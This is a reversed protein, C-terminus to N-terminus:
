IAYPNSQDKHYEIEKEPIEDVTLQGQDSMLLWAQCASDVGDWHHRKKDGLKVRKVAEINDPSFTCLQELLPECWKRPRSIENGKADTVPQGDPGTMLAGPLFILGAHPLHSVAHARAIKDSKGPDYSFVPVGARRLDQILSIGSSKNEVMVVDPSRSSADDGYRQKWDHVVKPRLDPYELWDSWFDLLLAARTEGHDFVGWTTCATPDNANNETGATDYSQVVYTFKPFPKDYPWVRFWSRKFIAGDEGDLIEAHLEQRGLQTGEYQALQKFFTPALNARNEYTSGTTVHVDPRKLMDRLFPLPRPTTTCILRPHQGLRMSMTIMDWAEELYDWAALEDLWGGHWQPGRFRRPKTAPIGKIWSGNVLEIESLSRNHDKILREPIVNELGSEGEFCVDRIDAETPAAVLWRTGPNNWAWRALTEAGVRTKGWGRGALPLWITWDGLPEIQKPRAESLWKLRWEAAARHDAPLTALAQALEVREQATLM